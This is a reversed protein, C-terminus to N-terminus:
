ILEILKRVNKVNSFDELLISERKQQENMDFPIIFLRSIEAVMEEASDKISCLQELGTNSVMPTNVICHRGTFLAALLKLKIGTAQFTPLVNIQANKILDDIEQTNINPKISIHAYDAAAAILDASPKKGAIILPIKIKSFV